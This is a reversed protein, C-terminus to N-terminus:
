EEKEIKKEKKTIITPSLSSSPTMKIVVLEPKPTHLIGVWVFGSSSPQLNRWFRPIEVLCCLMANRFLM